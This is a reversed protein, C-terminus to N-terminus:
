KEFRRILRGLSPDSYRHSHYNTLRTLRRSLRSDIKAPDAHWDTVTTHDVKSDVEWDASLRDASLRSGGSTRLLSTSLRSPRSGSISELIDLRKKRLREIMRGAMEQEAPTLDEWSTKRM